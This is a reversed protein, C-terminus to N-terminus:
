VECREWRLLNQQAKIAWWGHVAFDHIRLGYKLSYVHHEDGYLYLTPQEYGTLRQCEHICDCGEVCNSRRHSAFNYHQEESELEEGPHSVKVRSM